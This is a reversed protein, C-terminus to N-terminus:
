YHKNPYGPGLKGNARAALSEARAPWFTGSPPGGHCDGGSVGPVTVWMFADVHPFGTSTTPKPGLARGPPNCLDEVGQTHPHPNLKPGNGNQATNVVFDAGHTMRSVREGWAIEKITWNEHTDNTYFGRIKRIDIRNLAAATYGPGQADSYGAEVYVVAHPLTAARDVEYRLAAEWAPLAGHKAICVSSGLADLELFMVVPHTGIGTIVENVRRKFTPMYAYIQGVSPCGKLTAHLFYTSVIPVSGPDATLNGCLIKQVQGLVKGPGGGASFSSFRQQEPESAIKELLRVKNAVGAPEQDLRRDVDIQFREWSFDDAFSMSNLGLLQAIAGAALGHRPGDVFFDAGTLPNAGPATDLALPNSPDRKAPYPGGCDAAARASVHRQVAPAGLAASGVAACILAAAALSFVSRSKGM